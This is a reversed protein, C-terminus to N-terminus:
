RPRRPRAHRFFSVLGGTKRKCFIKNPLAQDHTDRPRVPLDVIAEVQPTKIQEETYLNGMAPRVRPNVTRSADITWHYDAFDVCGAPQLVLDILLFPWFRM